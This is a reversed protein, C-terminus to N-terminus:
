SLAPILLGLAMLAIFAVFVISLVKMAKDPTKTIAYGTPACVLYYGLILNALPVLTLLSWWGSAGIDHLRFVVPVFAGLAFLLGILELGQVSAFITALLGVTIM